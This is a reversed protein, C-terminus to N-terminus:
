ERAKGYNERKEEKRREEGRREERRYMGCARNM